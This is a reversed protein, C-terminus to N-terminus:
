IRGQQEVPLADRITKRAAALLEEDTKGRSDIPQHVIMEVNAVDPVYSGKPLLKNTGVFTIPILPVGTAAALRFAGSKFDRLIGDPSRTGEPFFFVPTNQHLHKRLDRMVNAHSNKNGRDVGVYGILYMAWGMLPVRFLSSKSLFRFRMGLYLAALIDAQSLHNAVYVAPTGNPALNETGSVKIKWGPFMYLVLKGWYIGFLHLLHRQKDGILVAVPLFLIVLTSCILAAVTIATWLFLGFVARVFYM